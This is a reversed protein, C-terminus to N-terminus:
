AASQPKITGMATGLSGTFLKRFADLVAATQRDPLLATTVMAVGIIGMGLKELTGM